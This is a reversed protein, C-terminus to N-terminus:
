RLKENWHNDSGLISYLIKGAHDQGKGSLIIYIPIIPLNQRNIDFELCRLLSSKGSRRIGEIYRVRQQGNNISALAAAQEDARGFFHDKIENPGLPRGYIYPSDVSSSEVPSNVLTLQCSPSDFQADGYEMRLEIDVTVTDDSPLIDPVDFTLVATQGHGVMVSIEDLTDRLPFEITSEQERAIAGILRVVTDPSDSKVRIAFATREANFDLLGEKGFLSEITLKPLLKLDRALRDIVRKFVHMLAEAHLNQDRSLERLFSDSLKGYAEQAKQLTGVKQGKEKLSQYGDWQKRLEVLADRSYTKKNKELARQLNDLHVNVIHLDNARHLDKECNHRVTQIVEDLTKPIEGYYDSIRNADSGWTPVVDFDYRKHYQVLRNYIQFGVDRLEPSMCLLLYKTAKERISRAFSPVRPNRNDKQRILAVLRCKLEEQFATAAESIQKTRELFDVKIQWYEFRKRAVLECYGLWFEIAEKQKRELMTNIFADINEREPLWSGPGPPNPIKPEGHLVYHGIRIVHDDKSSADLNEFEMWFYLLIAETLTTCPLWKKLCDRDELALAFFIGGYLMQLSPARAIGISLTSLLQEWEAEPSCCALNWYASSFTFREDVLKKLEIRAQLVQGSKALAYALYNRAIGNQIGTVRRLLSELITTAPGYARKNIHDKIQVFQPDTEGRNTSHTKFIKGGPYVLQDPGIHVKMRTRLLDKIEDVNDEIYRYIEEYSGRNVVAQLHEDGLITDKRRVGAEKEGILGTSVLSTWADEEEVNLAHRAKATGKSFRVHLEQLSEGYEKLFQERDEESEMSHCLGAAAQIIGEQILHIQHQTKITRCLAEADELLTQLDSTQLKDSIQVKIWSHLNNSLVKPNKSNHAADSYLFIALEQLLAFLEKNGTRWSHNWLERSAQFFTTAVHGRDSEPTLLNLRNEIDKSLGSNPQLTIALLDFLIKGREEALIDESLIEPISLVKPGQESSKTHNPVVETSVIQKTVNNENKEIDIGLIPAAEELVQNLGHGNSLEECWIRARSIEADTVEKKLSLARETTYLIIQAKVHDMITDESVGLKILSPSLKSPLLEIESDDPESSLYVKTWLRCVRLKAKLPLTANLCAINYMQSVKETIAEMTGADLVNGKVLDDLAEELVASSINLFQACNEADWEEIPTKTTIYGIVSNLAKEDGTTDRGKTKRVLERISFWFM